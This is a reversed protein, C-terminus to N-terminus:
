SSLLARMLQQVTERTDVEDLAVSRASAEHRPDDSEGRNPQFEVHSEFNHRPQTM